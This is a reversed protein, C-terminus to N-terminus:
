KLDDLNGLDRAIRLVTLVAQDKNTVVDVQGFWARHWIVQDPTLKQSSPSKDGDKIEILINFGKYGVLLDPCGKGVAHLHQVTCGMNRLTKVIEKQNEDVKAARM